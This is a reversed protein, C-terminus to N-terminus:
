AFAEYMGPIYEGEDNLIGGGYPLQHSQDNKVKPIEPGCECECGSWLSVMCHRTSVAAKGHGTARVKTSAEISGVLFLVCLVAYLRM